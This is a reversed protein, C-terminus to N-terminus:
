AKYKRRTFGLSLMGLGLLAISAPESVNAQSLNVRGLETHNTFNSNVDWNFTIEANSALENLVNGGLTLTTVQGLAVTSQNLPASFQLWAGPTNWLNWDGSYGNNAISAGGFIANSWSLNANVGSLFLDGEFGLTFYIPRDPVAYGSLDGTTKFSVSNSTYSVDSFILASHTVTALLFSFLFVGLKIVFSEGIISHIYLCILM